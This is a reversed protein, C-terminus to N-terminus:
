QQQQVAQKTLFDPALLANIQARLMQPSVTNSRAAAQAVEPNTLAKALLKAGIMGGAIGLPVAPNLMGIASAGGGGLAAALTARAAINAGSGSPNAWMKSSDRMMSAARAVSEVSAKVEPANQFGSFLEDRARPTM